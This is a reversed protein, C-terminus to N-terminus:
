DHSDESFVRGNRELAQICDMMGDVLQRMADVTLPANASSGSAAHGASISLHAKRGCQDDRRLHVAGVRGDSAIFPLSVSIPKRM